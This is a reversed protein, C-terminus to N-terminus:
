AQYRVIEENQECSLCTVEAILGMNDTIFQKLEEAGASADNPTELAHKLKFRIIIEEICKLGFAIAKTQKENDKAKEKQTM